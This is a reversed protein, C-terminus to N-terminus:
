GGDAGARLSRAWVLASNLVLIAAGLLMAVGFAHAFTTQAIHLLAQGVAPNHNAFAQQSAHLTVDVSSGAKAALAASHAHASVTSRYVSSLVSGLVAIGLAGGLESSTESIGSAAGARRAPAAAIITDIGLTFVPSMGLSYVTSGVIIASVGLDTARAVAIFGCAALVLGSAMIFAPQVRRAIVPSLFSGIVYSASWPLM